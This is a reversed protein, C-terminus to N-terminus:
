SLVRSAIKRYFRASILLPSMAILDSLRTKVQAYNCLSLNIAARQIINIPRNNDVFMNFALRMESEAKKSIRSYEHLEDVVYSCAHINIGTGHKRCVRVWFDWDQWAPMSERFLGASLMKAKTCFIQAGVCNEELLDALPVVDKRCLVREGGNMKRRCEDFLFGFEIGKESLDSWTEIFRRVRFSEFYDDDDLGTVYTGRAMNIAINRAACAGVPRENRRYRVPHKKSLDELYAHTGDTSAEDVVVIEINRYDQNLVSEIARRLLPLRNRTPIYVSVM